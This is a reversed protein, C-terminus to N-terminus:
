KIFCEGKKTIYATLARPAKKLRKLKKLAAEGVSYALPTKFLIDAVESHAELLKITKDTWLLRQAILHPNEEGKPLLETTFRIKFARCTRKTKPNNITTWM